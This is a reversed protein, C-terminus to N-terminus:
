GKSEVKVCGQPWDKRRSVAGYQAYSLFCGNTICARFLTIKSAFSNKLGINLKCVACLNVQSIAVVVLFLPVVAEDRLVVLVVLAAVVPREVV